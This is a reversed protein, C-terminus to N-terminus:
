PANDAYAKWRTIDRTLFANIAGATVNAAAVTEWIGIFKEYTAESPLAVIKTYGAVWTAVAIPGTSYHTTPSSTLAAVSDSRLDFQITATPGVFTTAVQIVLYVREGTGLDVLTNTPAQRDIVNGIIANGINLIASTADCFETTTDLIM